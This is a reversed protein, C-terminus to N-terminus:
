KNQLSNCTLYPLIKNYTENDIIAVKKLDCIDSYLGAQERMRVIAKAQYYDLYPHRKLQDVSASNIDILEIGDSNVSVYPAIDNYRVSDMGYVEWLQSKEVFGGLRARYKLIRKAFAPGINYLQVLDMSDASNLEVMVHASKRFIKEPMPEAVHNQNEFRVHHYNNRASHRQRQSFHSTPSGAENTDVESVIDAVPQPRSDIYVVILLVVVLVAALWLYGRRRTVGGGDM